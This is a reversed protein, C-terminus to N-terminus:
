QRCSFFVSTGKGPTSELSLSGAVELARKQMNKLGNGLTVTNNNFGIGNDVIKMFLKNEQRYIDITIFTAQAYKFCNNLSEKFILYMNKRLTMELQLNKLSPEARFNLQINKIEALPFAYEQMRFIMEEMTDNEPKVAWIMDQMASVTSRSSESIKAFVAKVQPPDALTEKAAVDSYLAISSLTSGLEDHFDSAIGSRIKELELQKSLRYRRYYLFSGLMFLGAGISLLWQNRQQVKLELSRLQNEKTLNELRLNKVANLQDLNQLRLNNLSDQQRLNRFEFLSIANEKEMETLALIGLQKERDANELQLERLKNEKGLLNIQQQQKETEYEARYVAELVQIRDTRQRAFISDRIATYKKGAELAAQYNGTNELCAALLQYNIWELSKVKFAIAKPLSKEIHGIAKNYEKKQYALRAFCAYSYARGAPDVLTDGSEFAKIFYSMAVDTEKLALYAKGMNNYAVAQVFPNKPNLALYQQYYPIAERPNGRWENVNGINILLDKVPEGHKQAEQYAPLFYALAKDYDELYKYIMGIRNEAKIALAHDKIQHALRLSKLLNEMSEGYKYQEYLAVGQLFLGWAIGQTYGAKQAYGTAQVALQRAKEHLRRSGYIDGLRFYSYYAGEYYGTRLSMELAKEAYFISSDQKPPYTAALADLAKVKSSDQPATLTLTLLSDRVAKIRQRSSQAALGFSCGVLLLIFVPKLM